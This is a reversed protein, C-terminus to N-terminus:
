DLEGLAFADLEDKGHLRALCTWRLRAPKFIGFVHGDPRPLSEFSQAPQALPQLQPGQVLDFRQPRLPVYGQPRLRARIEANAPLM